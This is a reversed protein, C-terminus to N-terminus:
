QLRSMFHLSVHIMSVHGSQLDFVFLMMVILTKCNWQSCGTKLSSPHASFSYNETIFFIHAAQADQQEHM